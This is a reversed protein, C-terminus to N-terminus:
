NTKRMIDQPSPKEKAPFSYMIVNLGVIVLAVVILRHAASHDLPSHDGSLESDLFLHFDIINMQKLVAVLLLATGLLRLFVTWVLLSKHQQKRDM